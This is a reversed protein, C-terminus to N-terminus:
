ALVRWRPAAAATRRTPSASISPRTRRMIATSRSMSCVARARHPSRRCARRGAALAQRGQQRHAPTRAARHGAHPRRAPLGAVLSSRARARDDPGRYQRRVVPLDTRHGSGRQARDARGGGLLVGGDGVEYSNAANPEGSDRHMVMPPLARELLAVGNVDTHRRSRGKAGSPRMDDYRRLMAIGVVVLFPEFPSHRSIEARLPVRRM